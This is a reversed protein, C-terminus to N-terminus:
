NCLTSVGVGEPAWCTASLVGPLLQTGLLLSPHLKRFVPCPMREWLGKHLEGEGHLSLRISGGVPWDGPEEDPPEPAQIGAGGRIAIHGQVVSGRGRAETEKRDILTIIDRRLTSTCVFTFHYEKLIACCIRSLAATNM